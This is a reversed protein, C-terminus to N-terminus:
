RLAEDWSMPRSAPRQCWTGGPEAHDELNATTSLPSARDHFAGREGDTDFLLVLDDIQLRAVQDAIQGAADQLLDGLPRLALHTGLEHAGLDLDARDDAAVDLLQTGLQGRQPTVDGLHAVLM